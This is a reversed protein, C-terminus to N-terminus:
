DNIERITSGCTLMADGFYPNRINKQVSLWDAGKNQDAMPCHQVFVPQEFPGFATAFDIMLKSLPKFQVRLDALQNNDQM